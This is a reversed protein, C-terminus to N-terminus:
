LSDYIVRMAFGATSTINFDFFLSDPQRSFALVVTDKKSQAQSVAPVALSFVLVLAIAVFLVRKMSIKEGTEAFYSRFLQGNCVGTLSSAARRLSQPSVNWINCSAFIKWRIVMWSWLM